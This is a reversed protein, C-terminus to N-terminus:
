SQVKSKQKSFLNEIYNIFYQLSGNNWIATIIILVSLYYTTESYWYLESLILCAIGALAIALSILTKKGKYNLLIGLIILASLGALFYVSEGGANPYLMKGSCMTMAGSYAM